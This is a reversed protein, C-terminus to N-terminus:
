FFNLPNLKKGNQIVEFHLHIGTAGYTRGTNGMLGIQQGQSVWQGNSVYITDLHAYLTKLGAGNDITVYNGYGGNWGTKATITGGHAAYIAIKRGGSAIDIAQHRYSYGQSISGGASPWILKTSSATTTTTQSSSTTTVRPTTARQVIVYNQQTPIIVPEPKPPKGDPIIVIQNPGVTDSEFKNQRKIKDEESSFRKAIDSIKEEKETKYVMGQVPPILLIQNPRITNSQLNNSFKITDISIGFRYAIESLTDGSKVEYEVVDTFEEGSYEDYEMHYKFLFGDTAIPQEEFNFYIEQAYDPMYLFGSVLNTSLFLIITTLLFLKLKFGWPIYLKLNTNSLNSINTNIKLINKHVKLRQHRLKKALKNIKM